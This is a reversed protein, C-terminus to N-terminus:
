GLHKALLSLSVSRWKTQGFQLVQVLVTPERQHLSPPVLPTFHYVLTNLKYM